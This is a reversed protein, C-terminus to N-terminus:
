MIVLKFDRDHSDGQFPKVALRSKGVMSEDSYILALHKCFVGSSLRVKDQLEGQVLSVWGSEQWVQSESEETASAIRLTKSLTFRPSLFQLPSKKGGSTWWWFLSAFHPLCPTFICFLQVRAKISRTPSSRSAALFSISLNFDFRLACGTFTLLGNSIYM